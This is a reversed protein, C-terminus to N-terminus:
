FRAYDFKDYLERMPADRPPTWSGFTLERADTGCGLAAALVVVSAKVAHRM